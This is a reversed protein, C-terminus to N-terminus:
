KFTYIGLNGIVTDKQYEPYNLKMFEDKDLENVIYKVSGNKFHNNYITADYFLLQTNIKLPLFLSMFRGINYDYGFILHQNKAFLGYKMNPYFVVNEKVYSKIKDATQISNYYETKVKHEKDFSYSYSHIVFNTLLLFLVYLAIGFKITKTILLQEKIKYIVILGLFLLLFISEFAYNIYSGARLMFVHSIVLLATTIFFLYKLLADKFLDIKFKRIVFFAFLYLPLIRSLSFVVFLINISTYFQTAKQFNFLIVNTYFHHGFISTLIIFVSCVLTIFVTLLLAYKLKRTLLMMSGIIISIYVLMDQKIYVTLTSIILFSLLYSNKQNFFEYEILLVVAITFFLFKMADPRVVYMHGTILLLDILIFVLINIAKIQFRKRLYTIVIFIQTAFLAFSFLRGVVLIAHIDDSDVNFLNVLFKLTYLYIPVFLCGYFPFKTPNVYLSKHELLRQVHYVFVFETGDLDVSYSFILLIRTILLYSILLVIVIYQWQYKDFIKKM